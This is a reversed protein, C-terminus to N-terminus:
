IAVVIQDLPPHRFDRIPHPEREDQIAIAYM